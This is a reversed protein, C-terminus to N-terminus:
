NENLVEQKKERLSHDDGCFRVQVQNALKEDRIERVM